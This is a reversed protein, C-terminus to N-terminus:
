TWTTEEKRDTSDVPKLTCEALEVVPKHHDLVSTEVSLAEAPEKGTWWRHPTGAALYLSDGAELEYVGSGTLEIFLVGSIVFIFEDSAHSFLRERFVEPKIKLTAPAMVNEGLVMEEFSVGEGACFTPRESVGVFTTADSPRALFPDKADAGYIRTLSALSEASLGYIGREVASVFSVSLGAAESVEKLTKHSRIRLRRMRRGLVHREQDTGVASAVYSRFAADLERRISAFNLKQLKRWCAVQEIRRVDGIDYVRHNLRTRRPSILGQREWSRLTQSPVGTIRSMEGVSIGKDDEDDSGPDNEIRLATLLNGGHDLLSIKHQLM